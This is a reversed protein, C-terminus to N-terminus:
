RVKVEFGGLFLEVARRCTGAMCLPDKTVHISFMNDTCDSVLQYSCYGPFYYYKGDFTKYHAVGWTYCTNPEDFGSLSPYNPIM